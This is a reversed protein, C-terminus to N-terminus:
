LPKIKSPEHPPWCLPLLPAAKAVRKGFTHKYHPDFRILWSQHSEHLTKEGLWYPKNTKKSKMYLKQFDGVNWTHRFNMHKTHMRYHSQNALLMGYTALHWEYGKWMALTEKSGEAWVFDTMPLSLENKIEHLTHLTRAVLAVQLRYERPDLWKLAEASKEFSSFPVLIPTANNLNKKTMHYYVSGWGFFTM